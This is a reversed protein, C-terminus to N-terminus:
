KAAAEEVPQEVIKLGPVNVATVRVQTHKQRHGTHRRSSKRRRLKQIELKEGKFLPNIIEATVSAGAITPQGILSDGGGNALLIKDFTLAGGLTGDKRYDVLVVEGVAAKYQRSGDEFIAFM